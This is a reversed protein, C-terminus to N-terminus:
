DTREKLVQAWRELETLMKAAALKEDETPVFKGDNIHNQVMPISVVEVIPVMKLASLIQKTAQVGRLGDSVEGYSVFAAPKYNWELYVYDLANLLAPSPGYNYEPAVFVFANAAEVSAAWKKTHAHQYKQLAPHHPEDYVPLNFDMLDVLVAKFLAHELAFSHFWAAVLPGSRGPRTSGIITHLRLPLAGQRRDRHEAQSAGPHAPAARAAAAERGKLAAPLLM